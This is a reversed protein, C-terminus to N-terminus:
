QFLSQSELWVALVDVHMEVWGRFLLLIKGAGEEHIYLM